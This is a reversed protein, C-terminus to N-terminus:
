KIKRIERKIEPIITTKIKQEQEIINNNIKDFVEKKFLQDNIMISYQIKDKIDNIDNNINQLYNLVKEMQDLLEKYYYVMKIGRKIILVFTPKQWTLASM